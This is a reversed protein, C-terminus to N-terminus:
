VRKVGWLGGDRVKVAIWTWIGAPLLLVSGSESVTQVGEEEEEEEEEM